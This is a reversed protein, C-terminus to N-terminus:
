RFDKHQKVIKCRHSKIVYIGSFDIHFLTNKRGRSGEATVPIKRWKGQREIKSLSPLFFTALNKFFSFRLRSQGKSCDRFLFLSVLITKPLLLNIRFTSHAWAPIYPQQVWPLNGQDTKRLWHM